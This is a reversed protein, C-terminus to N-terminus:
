PRRSDALLSPGTAGAERCMQRDRRLPAMDGQPGRTCALCRAARVKWLMHRNSRLAAMDGQPGRIRALSRAARAEWGVQRDSRLTAVNRRGAGPLSRAGRVNCGVLRDSGLSAVRRRSLVVGNMQSFRGVTFPVRRALTFVRLDGAGAIVRVLRVAGIRACRVARIRVGHSRM